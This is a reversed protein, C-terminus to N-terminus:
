LCGGICWSKFTKMLQGNYTWTNHVYLMHFYLSHSRRVLAPGLDLPKKKNFRLYRIIIVDACNCLSKADSHLLHRTLIASKVLLASPFVSVLYLMAYCLRIRLDMIIMKLFVFSLTERWARLRLSYRRHWMCAMLLNIIKSLKPISYEQCPFVSVLPGCGFSLKHNVLFTLTSCNFPKQTQSLSDSLDDLLM